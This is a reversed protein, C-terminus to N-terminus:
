DKERRVVLIKRIRDSKGSKDLDEFSLSSIIFNRLFRFLTMDQLTGV